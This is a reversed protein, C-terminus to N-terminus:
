PKKHTMNLKAEWAENSRTQGQQTPHTPTEVKRDGGTHTYITQM